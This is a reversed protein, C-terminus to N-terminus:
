EEAGLVENIKNLIYNEIDKDCKEYFKCKECTKFELCTTQIERIEELAQKLNLFKDLYYYEYEKLEKNEQELRKYKKFDCDELYECNDKHLDCCYSSCKELYRCEAVNVGNLIIEDESRM